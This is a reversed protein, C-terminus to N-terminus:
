PRRRRRAVWRLWSHYCPECLGKSKLKRKVGCVACTDGQRQVLPLPGDTSRTRRARRDRKRQAEYHTRCLGKAYIPRACAPRDDQYEHQCQDM